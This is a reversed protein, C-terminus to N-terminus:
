NYEHSSWLSYGTQRTNIRVLNGFDDMLMPHYAWFFHYGWVSWIFHFRTSTNDYGAM